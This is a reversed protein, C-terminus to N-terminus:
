RAAAIDALPIYDVTSGDAQQWTAAGFLTQKVSPGPVTAPWGPDPGTGQVVGMLAAYQDATVDGADRALYLWNAVAARDGRAVDQGFQVVGPRNYIKSRAAADLLGMLGAVTLANPVVPAPDPNAVSGPANVAAFRQADNMSAYAPKALETKLAALQQTSLAM